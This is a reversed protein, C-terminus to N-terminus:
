EVEDTAELLRVGSFSYIAGVTVAIGTAAVNRCGVAIRFDLRLGAAIAETSTRVVAMKVGSTVADLGAWQGAAGGEVNCLGMKIDDVFLFALPGFM